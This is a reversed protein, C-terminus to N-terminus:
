KNEEKEAKRLVKFAWKADKYDHTKYLAVGDILVYYKDLEGVYEIRSRKSTEEAIVQIECCHCALRGVLDLMDGKCYVTVEKRTGGETYIVTWEM